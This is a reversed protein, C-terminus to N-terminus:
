PSLRALFMDYSGASSLTPSGFDLTGKFRGTSWVSGSADFAVAHCDQDLADGYRKTWLNQGASNYKALFVDAEGASAVPGGGFDATGTLRGGIVIDNSSDVAVGFSLQEQVGSSDGFWRSWQHGGGSDFKVLYVDNAGHSTLTGGGFNMSGTFYGTFVVNGASDVAVKRGIQIGTDGAHKSWQHVGSSSLKLFFADTSAATMPAGGFDLTGSFHGTVYLNGSSDAAIGRATQDVADGFRKSWVHAGSTSLKLVYIDDAGASTLAGGGFDVADRFTGTLFVNGQSDVAIGEADDSGFGGFAKSWVHGGTPAYKAVFVDAAAASKSVLVGGGFDVAGAFDGAVYINGSADVAVARGGDMSAAGFRKSWVHQGQSDYKAVFIDAQGASTLAGGGFDVTGVFEGVVIGNGQLDVVVDVGEQDGSEGARVAWQVTGCADGVPGTCSEDILTSCDEQQPLVEGVCPGWLTGQANCARTGAKCAGVGLTGSPGSYCSETSNPECACGAGSENVEGDCDEDGPLTCTELVPTVEGICPGYGTGQANCTAMGGKCAGVNLTNAPGSYCSSTSAPVCSCDTGEENVEGDCDEDGPLACTEQTPTVEGICVGYGTGQANCTTTGGKCDGVDKTGAPGSYCPAVAGPVCACGPGDENVLGDCDDDGATACTEETPVVEGVCPGFGTGDSLCTKLGAKCLGSVETGAPGTYCYETSAPVCAGGGGGGAAGASGGIGATGGVGAAGASNATGATGGDPTAGSSGGAQAGAAGKKDSGSLISPDGSGGCGGSVTLATVVCAMVANIGFPRAHHHNM